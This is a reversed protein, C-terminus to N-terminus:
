PEEGLGRLYRGAVLSEAVAIILVLLMVYWWLEYPRMQRPATEGAQEIRGNGGRWLSMLDQPMAALDSERRDPNVGVLDPPGSARRFEYFGARTLPFLQSSAAQNLSLAQRGAPGTVEVASAAGRGTRLEVSSGVVQSGGQRELGSLYRATQEVFPVFAPHLPFDNSLNDLGSALLLVRGAGVNKELLVPTQDALRVIVRANADNVRVAFYFKVGRWGDANRVSPHSRDAQGVTVFRAGDRAYDVSGLVNGGFIPITPSRAASTAAAVLVSGGRRVYELLYAAFPQPLSPVDSLVVFAYDSPKVGALNETSVAEFKFAGQAASELAAGFYLPSRSDDPEHVFLVREPDSRVVGFVFEDDAPLSDASDIKVTCRSLGYPVALSPFDVMARGNAPVEVNRIAIVKGNITLSATRTAAPTHYGAILARVPTKSSEWVQGPADVSQVTWNPAAAPGVVHPVLSVNPPLVLDRFNTPMASRQMDSFLHLEVPARADEAILRLARALEGFSARSDGPQVSEVAARLAAADDTPGALARFHAGLTMVEAPESAKRVALVSLAERRADALRSGARMSFSHDIVALLLKHSAANAAPRSIFPDAFALALLAVLAVRLALLLLHRLRRRRVSSEIRREFFMLSSFPRPDSRHRRLLHLYLPVGVAATGALFWPALAGM